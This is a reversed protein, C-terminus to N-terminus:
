AGARYAALAAALAQRGEATRSAWRLLCKVCTVKANGAPRGRAQGCWTALTGTLAFHVTASGPPALRAMCSHMDGPTIRYFESLDGLDVSAMGDGPRLTSVPGPRYRAHLHGTLSM